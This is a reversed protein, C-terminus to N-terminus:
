GLIQDLFKNIVTETKFEDEAIRASCEGFLSLEADSAAAWETLTQCASEAADAKFLWGNRGAQLTELHNGVHDSLMLPLGAWLAEIVSLPNPDSLSPLLFTDAVAYLKILEEQELHGLLRLDISPNQKIWADVEERLPGDGAILLTFSQAVSAPLSKLSSLFPIINKEPILRAILLLVRKNTAIGMEERVRGKVERVRLVHNKFVKENVTNPLSYLPKNPAYYQIFDSALKGPVAFGDYCRLLLSRLKDVGRGKKRVSKLHSESWFLLKSGHLIKSGLVALINTPHIWAGALLLVEPSEKLLQFLITPNFYIVSDAFTFSKGRLIRYNFRFDEDKFQWYRGPESMGMFWIELGRGRKELENSLLEFFHLRYPSPINTMCIFRRKKSVPRAAVKEFNSRSESFTSKASM